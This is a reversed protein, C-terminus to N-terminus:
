FIGKQHIKIAAHATMSCALSILDEDAPQWGLLGELKGTEKIGLKTM